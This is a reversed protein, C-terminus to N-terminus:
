VGSPGSQSRGSNLPREFSASCSYPLHDKAEDLPALVTLGPLVLLAAVGEELTSRIDLRVHPSLEGLSHPSM